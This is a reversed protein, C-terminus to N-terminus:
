GTPPWRVNQLEWVADYLLAVRRVELAIMIAIWTNLGGVLALALLSLVALTPASIVFAEMVFSTLLLAAVIVYMEHVLGLHGAAIKKNLNAEDQSDAANGPRVLAHLVKRIEQSKDMFGLSAVLMLGLLVGQVALSASLFM